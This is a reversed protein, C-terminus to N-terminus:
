ACPDGEVYPELKAAAGTAESYRLLPGGDADLGDRVTRLLAPLVDPAELREPTCTAAMRKAAMAAAEALEKADDLWLRPFFSLGEAKARMRVNVCFRYDSESFEGWLERCYGENVSMANEFGERMQLRRYEDRIGMPKENGKDRLAQVGGARLMAKADIREFAQAKAEVLAQAAMADAEGRAAEVSFPPELGLERAAIIAPAAEKVREFLWDNASRDAEREAEALEALCEALVGAFHEDTNLGRFKGYAEPMAPRPEAQKEEVKEFEKM